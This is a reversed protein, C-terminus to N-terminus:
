RNLCFIMSWCSVASRKKADRPKLQSWPVILKKQLREAFAQYPLTAKVDISYNAPPKCSARWDVNKHTQGFHTIHTYNSLKTGYQSQDLFLRKPPLIKRQIDHRRNQYRDQIEALIKQVYTQHDNELIFLTREPLYDFLTATQEYFLPLYYEIGPTPNGKSTEKYVLQKSPDGAFEARFANRFTEIGSKTLPIERAPLLSIQQTPETSRQTEPDFYRISEIEDGFLDLRFPVDTGMAFIDVVGGRVAYEGQTLVQNVAHYGVHTLQQRLQPIDVQQGTKLAFSHGLVYDLPPLRQLLTETATLVIGNNIKPMNALMKLRTSIIEQHPSFIDYALTEWDPFIEASKSTENGVFFNIEHKLVQLQRPNALAVVIPGAHTQSAETIALALGAGFLNGWRIPKRPTGPLTPSLLAPMIILYFRAALNYPKRYLLGRM